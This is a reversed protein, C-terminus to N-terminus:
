RRVPRSALIHDPAPADEDGAGRDEATANPRRADTGLVEDGDDEALDDGDVTDDHGNDEGGLDARELAGTGVGIRRVESAEGQEPGADGDAHAVQDATDGNADVATTGGQGIRSIGRQVDLRGHRHVVLKGSSVSAVCLNTLIRTMSIKLEMRPRNPRM